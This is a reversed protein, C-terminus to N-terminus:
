FHLKLQVGFTTSNKNFAQYQKFDPAIQMSLDDSVDFDFLHADVAADVLNLGYWVVLLASILDVNRRYYNKAQELNSESTYVRNNLVYKGDTLPDGDVKMQYAKRFGQYKKNQDYLFYAGVGLGAYVIPIKWYKKNYAQGLGPLAASFLVAKLPSHLKKKPLATTDVEIGKNVLSIITDPILTLDVTDVQQAYLSATLLMM